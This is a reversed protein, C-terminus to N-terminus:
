DKRMDYTNEYRIRITYLLFEFLEMELVITM